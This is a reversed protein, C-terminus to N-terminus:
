SPLRPSQRQPAEAAPPPRGSMIHLVLRYLARLARPGAAVWSAYSTGDPGPATHARTQCTRTVDVQRPAPGLIPTGHGFVRFLADTLPLDSPEATFVGQWHRPLRQNDSTPTSRGNRKQENDHTQQRSHMRRACNTRGRDGTQARWPSDPTNTRGRDGTQARRPPSPSTYLPVSTERRRADATGPAMNGPTLTPGDDTTTGFHTALTNTTDHRHANHPHPAHAADAFDDPPPSGRSRAARRSRRRALWAPTGM